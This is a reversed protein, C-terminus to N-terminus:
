DVALFGSFELVNGERTSFFVLHQLPELNRDLEEPMSGGEGAAGVYELVYPITERLNVYAFGATESPMDSDSLADRFSEDDSLRDGEERLDSIGSRQTTVVLRGDFAAYFISVPPEIDIQRAEIGGIDTTTPEGLPLHERLGAVLDDVVAVAQEEDDVELVITVEPIFAGRRVYVAGEGAFLPGIDEELSVGIENEFRGIDREFEPEVQAFVDRLKSLQGELDKFSMYALAGAPAVDPLKAEYSPGVWGDPDDAFGVAGELRGGGEEAALSLSVWPVEGGPLLEAVTGLDFGATEELAPAAAPGNFYFRILSDETVRAMAEAFRADNALTGFQRGRVLADLYEESAAFATWGEIERFFVDEGSKELLQRLKEADQPQTLGVFSQDDGADLWVVNVQPGVAPKVDEELDIGEDSLEDLIFSRLKGGDPFKDVLDGATEWQGSDFDTNIAVFLASDAPVLEVGAPLGGEDEAGCGAAVPVLALCALFVILRRFRM